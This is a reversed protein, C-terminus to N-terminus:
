LQSNDMTSVPLITLIFFHLHPTCLLFLVNSKIISEVENQERKEYNHIKSINLITKM